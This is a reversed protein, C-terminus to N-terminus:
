IITMKLSASLDRGTYIEGNRHKAGATSIVSFCFFVEMRLDKEKHCM